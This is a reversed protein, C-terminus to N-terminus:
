NGNSLGCNETLLSFGFGAGLDESGCDPCVGGCYDKHPDFVLGCSLCHQFEEIQDDFGYDVKHLAALTLTHKEIPV